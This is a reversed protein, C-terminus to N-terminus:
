VVKRKYYYEAQGFAFIGDVGFRKQLKNLLRSRDGGALFDNFARRGAISPTIIKRRRKINNKKSRAGGGM